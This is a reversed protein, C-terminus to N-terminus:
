TLGASITSCSATYGGGCALKRGTACVVGVRQAAAVGVEKPLMRWPFGNKLVYVIGAFVNRNPIRPRGGKERSPDPPLLPEILKWLEDSVLMEHM